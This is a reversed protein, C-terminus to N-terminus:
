LKEIFYGFVTMFITADSTKASVWKGSNVLLNTSTYGTREGRIMAEQFLVKSVTATDISDGEYIIVDADVTNSVSRAAKINFGTIVFQMTPRPEFFNFATGTADMEHFVTNSYHLPATVLEGSPSVKAIMGNRGHIRVPTAM